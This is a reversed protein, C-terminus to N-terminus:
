INTKISITSNLLEDMKMNAVAVKQLNETM